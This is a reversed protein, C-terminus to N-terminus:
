DSARVSAASGSSSDLASARRPLAPPLAAQAAHVRLGRRRDGGRGGGVVRAPPVGRVRRPGRADLGWPVVRRVAARRACSRQCQTRRLVAPAAGPLMMAAMMWVWLAVFFAFSGLRTAVGMDMGNMQSVAVVWSAAALGLTATLAAATAATRASTPGASRFTPTAFPRGLATAAGNRWSEAVSEPRSDPVSMRRRRRTLRRGPRRRSRPRGWRRSRGPTRSLPGLRQRPRVGRRRAARQARPPCADQRWRPDLHDRGAHLPGPDSPEPEDWGFTFVVRENPVVEVFEGASPHRGQVLVRHAGGVRADLEAETGMWRVHQEPDVLFPFITAPSAVIVVERILEAM